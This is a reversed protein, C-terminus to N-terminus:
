HALSSGDQWDPSISIHGAASVVLAAARFHGLLPAAAEGAIMVVKTLADAIMCSPAQVAAGAVDRTPAGTRPDVVRSASVDWSSFPDVSGGSAALAGNTVAVKCLIRRADCPHRLDISQPQPGFAALDGGANVLGAPVGFGALAEAARDVAFGKAIGGLDIRVGGDRFRVSRAPLLEIADSGGVRPPCAAEDDHRPLFGMDRLAPAVAIDFAGQSRAHLDLAAQLVVYTWSNVTVPHAAADRNLRSVDSDPEHFSMLRHVKAIDAFAAEIAAGAHPGADEVAIEVFTGLLPKARRLIPRM